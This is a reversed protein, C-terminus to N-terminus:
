VHQANVTAQLQGREQQVNWVTTQQILKQRPCREQTASNAHRLVQRQLAGQKAYQANAQDRLLCVEKRVCKAHHRNKREQMSVLVVLKAHRLCPARTKRCQFSGQIV